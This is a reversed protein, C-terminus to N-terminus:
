MSVELRTIVKHSNSYNGEALVIDKNSCRNCNSEPFINGLLIVLKVHIGTSSTCIQM